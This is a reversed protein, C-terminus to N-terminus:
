FRSGDQTSRATANNLYFQLDVIRDCLNDTM